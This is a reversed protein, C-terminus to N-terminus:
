AYRGLVDISRDPGITSTSPGQRVLSYILWEGKSFTNSVQWGSFTARVSLDLHTPVINSRHNLHPIALHFKLSRDAPAFGRHGYSASTGRNVTRSTPGRM